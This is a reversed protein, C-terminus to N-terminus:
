KDGKKEICEFCTKGCKMVNKRDFIPFIENVQKRMEEALERIEWQAHKCLRENLFSILERTNMTVIINSCCANPFVYRADEIAQKETRGNNILENVLNDYTNQDYEMASLFMDKAKPIKEIEFPVVYDFQKLKVYRQSQQSYSALRHRVLQHTLSRSVGEIAFTFSAHELPSQHASHSKIFELMKEANPIDDLDTLPNSKMPIKIETPVDKSYCIRYARYITEIPNQTHDIIKIKM